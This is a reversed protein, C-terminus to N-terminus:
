LADSSFHFVHWVASDCGVMDGFSVQRCVCYVTEKEEEKTSSLDVVSSKPMAPTMFMLQSQVAGTTIASNGTTTRRRKRGQGSSGSPTMLASSSFILNMKPLKRTSQVATVPPVRFQSQLIPEEELLADLAEETAASNLSFKKSAPIQAPDIGRQALDADLKKLQADVKQGMTKSGISLLFCYKLM